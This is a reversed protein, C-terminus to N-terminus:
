QNVILEADGQVKINRIGKQRALELGLLLAEYEATNNTNDFQLKYASPFIESSPSILVVGA